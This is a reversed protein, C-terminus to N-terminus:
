SVRYIIKCRSCMVDLPRKVERMEGIIIVRIDSYYQAVIRGCGVCHFDKREQPSVNSLIVTVVKRGEDQLPLLDRGVEDESALKQIIKNEM